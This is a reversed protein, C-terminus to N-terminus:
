ELPDQAVPAVPTVTCTWHLDKWVALPACTVRADVILSRDAARVASPSRVSLSIPSIRPNPEDGSSVTM